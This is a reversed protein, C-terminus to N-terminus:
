GARNLHSDRLSSAPEEDGGSEPLEAADLTRDLWRIARRSIGDLFLLLGFHGVPYTWREPGGALQHFEDTSDRTFWQDFRGDILLAPMGGVSSLHNSPASLAMVQICADTTDSRFPRGGFIRQCAPERWPRAGTGAMIAVSFFDPNRSLLLPSVMAGYSLGVVSWPRAAISPDAALLMDAAIEAGLVSSFAYRDLMMALLYPGPDTEFPHMEPATRDPATGASASEESSERDESTEPERSVSEALEIAERSASEALEIFSPHRIHLTTYGSRALSRALNREAATEALGAMYVITGRPADSEHLTMRVVGFTNQENSFDDRLAGELRESERMETVASKWSNPNSKGFDLPDAGADRALSALRVARANVSKIVSALRVAIVYDHTRNDAATQWIAADSRALLPPGDVELEVAVLAWAELASDDSAASVSRRVSFADSPKPAVPPLATQREVTSCAGAGLLTMALAGTKFARILM